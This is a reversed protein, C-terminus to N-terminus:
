QYSNKGYKTRTGFVGGLYMKEYNQTERPSEDSARVVTSGNEDHFEVNYIQDPRIITSKMVSTLHTVFFAQSMDMNEMLFKVIFEGLENSFGSSFEDFLIMGNNSVAHKLIPLIRVLTQNGESEFEYPIWCNLSGKRLFIIRGDNFYISNSSKIEEFKIQTPFNNEKLINNIFNINENKEFFDIHIKENYNYVISQKDYANFYASNELFSMWDRLVKSNSFKNAFYYKKLFLTSENYDKEDYNIEENRLKISAKNLDRKLIVENNLILIEELIKNSKDFSFSYVINEKDILFEYKLKAENCDSFMCIYNSLSINTDVFLMTLLLNISKIITTKGVGNSGFFLCGRVIGNSVNNKVCGKFKTAEFDIVTENKFTKFNKLTLKKLM